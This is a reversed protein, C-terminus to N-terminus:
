IDPEVTGVAFLWYEIAFMKGFQLTDHDNVALVPVSDNDCLPLVQVNLLALLSYTLRFTLYYTSLVM